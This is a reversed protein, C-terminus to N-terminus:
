RAVEPLGHLFDRETQDPGRVAVSGLKFPDADVAPHAILHGFHALLLAEARGVDKKRELVSSCAPFLQLARTRSADKEAGTLGARKKWTAPMVLTYPIEFAELVLRIGHFSGGFNFASAAGMASAARNDARRPAGMVYELYAHEVPHKRLLRGLTAGAIHQKNGEKGWKMTPMDAVEHAHLDPTLWALAGTVGPDIGLLFGM